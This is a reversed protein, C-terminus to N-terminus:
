GVTGLVYKYALSFDVMTYIVSNYSSVKLLEIRGLCRYKNTQCLVPIHLSYSIFVFGFLHILTVNQWIDM